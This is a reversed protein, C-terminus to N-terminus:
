DEPPAPSASFPGSAYTTAGPWNSASALNAFGARFRGVEEDQSCAWDVIEQAREMLWPAVAGCAVVLDLCNVVVRADRRACADEVFAELTSFAVVVELLGAVYLRREVEGCELYPTGPMASWLVAAWLVQRFEPAARQLASILLRVRIPSEETPVEEVDYLGLLHARKGEAGDPSELSRLFENRLGLEELGDIGDYWREERM